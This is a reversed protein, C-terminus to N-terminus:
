LEADLTISTIQVPTNVYGSPGKVRFRIDVHARRVPGSELQEFSLKPDAFEVELRPRVRMPVAPVVRYVGKDNPSSPPFLIMGKTGSVRQKYHIFAQDEPIMQEPSTGEAPLLITFYKIMESPFNAPTAAMEISLMFYGGFGIGVTGPRPPSNIPSVSFRYGSPGDFDCEVVIDFDGPAKDHTDLDSASPFHYEAFTQNGSLHTLPEFFLKQDRRHELHVRGSAHYSLKRTRSRGIHEDSPIPATDSSSFHYSRETNGDRVFHLYLSGDNELSWKALRHLSNNRRILIWGELSSSM